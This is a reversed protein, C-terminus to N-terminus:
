YVGLVGSGRLEGLGPTARQGPGPPRAGHDERIVAGDRMM